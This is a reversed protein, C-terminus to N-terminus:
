RVALFAGVAAIVAGAVRSPAISASEMWYDWLLSTIVQAVIVMIFVRTAGVREIAWPATAIILFGFIGPLLITPGVHGPKSRFIEPLSDAAQWRLFFYLSLSCALLVLNNIVLAVPLGISGAIKKNLTNQLVGLCGIGLPILLTFIM